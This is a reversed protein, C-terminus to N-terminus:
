LKVIRGECLRNCIGDEAFPHKKYPKGCIDCITDGGARVFDFEEYKKHLHKRVGDKVKYITVLYSKNSYKELEQLMEEKTKCYIPINIAKRKDLILHIIYLADKAEAEKFYRRITRNKQTITQKNFGFMRRLSPTLENNIRMEWREGYAKTWQNFICSGSHQTTHYIKWTAGCLFCHEAYVTNDYQRLYSRIFDSDVYKRGAKDTKIEQKM